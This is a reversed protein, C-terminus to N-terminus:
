RRPLDPFAVSRLETLTSLLIGLCVLVPYIKQGAFPRRLNFRELVNPLFELFLVTYTMVCM